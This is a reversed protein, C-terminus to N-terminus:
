KDVIKLKKVNRYRESQRLPSQFSPPKVCYAYKMSSEGYLILPHIVSVLGALILALNFDLFM